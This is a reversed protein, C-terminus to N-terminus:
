AALYSLGKKETINQLGEPMNRISCISAKVFDRALEQRIGILRGRGM